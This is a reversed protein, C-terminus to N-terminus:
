RRGGLLEKVEADTLGVDDVDANGAPLERRTGMRALALTGTASVAGLLTTPGALVAIRLWLPEGSGFGMAFLLGGLLLGAAAGWAGFRLLSLEDFRRRGAAIRLVVSFVVGGLFGPIALVIPWIDVVPGLPFGPWLNWILEIMGGVFGWGAAWTLGMGVAGRVRRLLEKM